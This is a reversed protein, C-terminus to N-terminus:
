ALGLEEMRKRIQLLDRWAERKLVPQRLLYAPHFIAMTPVPAALGPIPHDHWRGRLRTIGQDTALIAKASTGGALILLKPAALAIHREIFPLCIAIEGSSPTRNGPPRWPLINTIYVTTRDLGIAALMRDLLQGAPGVFPKGQRDEESGPAEGVVMISADPNGDAFVFNTATAKLACGEFAQMAGALDSLSNMRAAVARADASAADSGLPMTPKAALAAPRAPRELTGAQPPPPRRVPEALATLDIPAEAISEDVGAEEYWALLAALQQLGPETM